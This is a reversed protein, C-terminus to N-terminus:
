RAGTGSVWSPCLASIPLKSISKDEAEAAMVPVERLGQTRFLSLPICVWQSYTRDHVGEPCHGHGEREAVSAM